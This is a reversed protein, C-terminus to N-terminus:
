LWIHFAGLKKHVVNIAYGYYAFVGVNLSKKESCM